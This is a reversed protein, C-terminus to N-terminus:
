LTAQLDIKGDAGVTMQVGGRHQIRDFLEIIQHRLAVTIDCCVFIGWVRSFDPTQPIQNM